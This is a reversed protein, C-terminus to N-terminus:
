IKFKSTRVSYLFNLLDCDKQLMRCNSIVIFLSLIPFLRKKSLILFRSFKTLYPFFHTKPWSQVTIVGLDPHTPTTGTIKAFNTPHDEWRRWAQEIGLEYSHTIGKPLQATPLATLGIIY